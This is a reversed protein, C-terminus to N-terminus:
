EGDGAAVTAGATARLARSRGTPLRARVVRVVRPLAAGVALTATTAPHAAAWALAPVTAALLVTAVLGRATLRRPRTRRRHTDTTSSAHQRTRDYM